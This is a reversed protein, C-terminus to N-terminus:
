AENKTKDTIEQADVIGKLVAEFVQNLVDKEKISRLRDLNQPSLELDDISNLSLIEKPQAEKHDKIMERMFAEIVRSPAIEECVEKFEKAVSKTIWLTLRDKKTEGRLDSLYDESRKVM